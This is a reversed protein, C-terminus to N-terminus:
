NRNWYYVEKLLITKRLVRSATQPKKQFKSCDHLKESFLEATIDYVDWKWEVQFHAVM